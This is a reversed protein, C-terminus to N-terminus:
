AFNELHLHRPFYGQTILRHFDNLVALENIVNAGM